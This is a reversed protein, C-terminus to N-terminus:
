DPVELSMTNQNLKKATLTRYHENVSESEQKKTVNIVINDPMRTVFKYQNNGYLQLLPCKSVTWECIDRRLGFWWPNANSAGFPMIMWSILTIWLPISIICFSFSNNGDLRDVLLIAFILFPIFICGYVIADSTTGTERQNSAILRHTCRHVIAIILKSSTFLLAISLSIWFPLFVILLEFIFLLVHICLYITLARCDNDRFNRNRDTKYWVILGTLAGFIVLMKWIYLPLFVLWFSIQIYDDLQLAFPLTFILLCFTIVFRLPSTIVTFPVLLESKEKDQQQKNYFSKKFFHFRGQRIVRHHDSNRITDEISPISSLSQTTSTNNFRYEINGYIQLVPFINLLWDCFNQRLGFWWYNSPARTGFSTYILVILASWLPLCVGSFSIDVTHDLYHALLIEFILLFMLICINAISNRYIRHCRDHNLNHLHVTAERHHIINWISRCISFIIAVAMTIYLPIFVFVFNWTISNDLRVSIFIFQLINVVFLGYIEWERGHRLAWIYSFVSVISLIILPLFCYVWKLKNVTSQELNYCVLVEFTLLLSATILNLFLARCQVPSGRERHVVSVHFYTIVGTIAGIIIITKWIYLPLFIIWYSWLIFTQVRFAFLISFILTSLAVLFQCANFDQLVSVTNM